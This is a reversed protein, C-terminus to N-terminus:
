DLVSEAVADLDIEDGARRRQRLDGIELVDFAAEREGVVGVSGLVEDADFVKGRAGPRVAVGAAPQSGDRRRHRSGPARSRNDAIGVVGVLSEPAQELTEGIRQAVDGQPFVVGVAAAKADSIGCAVTVAECVVEM